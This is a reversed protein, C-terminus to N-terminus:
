KIGERKVAEIGEAIDMTEAIEYKDPRTSFKYLIDETPRDGHVFLLKRPPFVKHYFANCMLTWLASFVIEAMSCFVMPRVPVLWNGM